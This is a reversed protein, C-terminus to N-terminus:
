CLGYLKASTRGHYKALGLRPACMCLDKRRLIKAKSTDVIVCLWLPHYGNTATVGDLSSVHRSVINRAIGFYYFSDDTYYGLYDAARLHIACIGFHAMGIAAGFLSILFRRLTKIERFEPIPTM